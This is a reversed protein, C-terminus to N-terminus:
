RSLALPPVERSRVRGISRLAPRFPMDQGVTSANRQGDHQASGVQVVFPRERRREIRHHQLTAAAYPARRMAAQVLAVRKAVTIGGHPCAPDRWVNALFPFRRENPSGLALRLSPHDLARVAPVIAEATQQNAPFHFGAVVAREDGERGRENCM